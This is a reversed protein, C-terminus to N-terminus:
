LTRLIDRTRHIPLSFHGDDSLIQLRCHPLDAALRHAHGVPVVSDRGGHWIDVHTGVHAPDFGWGRSYLRLEQIAGDAGGVLARRIAVEWTQRLERDRFVTRDAPPAGGALLGFMLRPRRRVAAALVHFLAAQIRSGRRALRISLRSAASMGDIADADTLSGLGGVTAVPGFMAPRRAACALAYPAGGSVGLVSASVSGIRAMLAVADDPWDLIRRGAHPASGGFGPRDPAVLRLGLERAAGDAFLVERGCSPFGHCYLVTRGAPDGCEVWAMARGDALTLRHELPAERGVVTTTGNM